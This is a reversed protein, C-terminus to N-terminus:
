PDGAFDNECMFFCTVDSGDDRFMCFRVVGEAIFALKRCVKGQSVFYENKPFAELQFYEAVTECEEKTLHFQEQQFTIFNQVYDVKSGSREQM